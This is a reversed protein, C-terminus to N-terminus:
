WGQFACDVYASDVFHESPLLGKAALCTHIEATSTMDQEMAPCTKV